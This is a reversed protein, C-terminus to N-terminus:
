KKVWILFRDITLSLKMLVGEIILLYKMRVKFKLKSLKYRFGRPSTNLQNWQEKTLWLTATDKLDKKM